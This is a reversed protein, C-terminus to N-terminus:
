WTPVGAAITTGSTREGGVMEAAARCLLASAAAAVAASFVEAARRWRGEPIFSVTALALLRGERAALAAGLFAVWLILHQVFAGSGPIGFHLLGRALIEAIPLVAM